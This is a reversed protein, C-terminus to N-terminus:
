EPVTLNLETIEDTVSVIQSAARRRKVAVEFIYTEGAAVTEFRYFGFSNARATRTSGRGDTMSVLAGSVGRGAPTLVRGSISVQAATPALPAATGILEVEGLQMSNAVNVDRLTPFTLRYTKYAVPALATPLQVAVMNLGPTTLPLGAANRELPLDLPQQDIQTWSAGGDNSGEFRYSAPDREPSDNATYFRLTTVATSGRLPTVVFGAGERTFNLYKTTTNDTSKAVGETEPPPGGGMWGNIIQLTDEPATVDIPQDTVTYREGGNFNGNGAGTGGLPVNTQNKISDNDVLDLRVTGEAGSGVYVSVTYSGGSGAVGNLGAGSVSGTTALAFDSVDVGTVNQTFLVNFRVTSRSNVFDFGARQITFALPSNEIPDASLEFAGIDFLASGNADGDKPRAMGRIDRTIAPHSFGCGNATAVCNDGRDILPSGASLGFTPMTGGNNALPSLLPDTGGPLDSAVFGGNGGPDRVLNGGSTTLWGSLDQEGIPFDNLEVSRNLAVVSNKMNLTGGSRVWVGGATVFFEGFNRRVTNEFVLSDILNLTGNSADIGAGGSSNCPCNSIAENRYIQSNIVTTTAGPRALIGAGNADHNSITDILNNRVTGSDFVLTAGDNVYIGGGDAQAANNEVLLDRLTTKGGDIKLGGGDLAAGDRVTMGSILINNANLTFIRFHNATTDRRVTLLNAGKGSIFLNKNIVLSRLDNGLTITQPADFLPAAFQITDGSSRASAIAERLSCDADCSGDATDATKTVLITTGATWTFTADATLGCRDTARVKIVYSGAVSPNLINVVGNADVTPLTPMAPSVSVISYALTGNDTATTPSVLSPATSTAAVSAPYALVPAPNTGSVNVTLTGNTTAGGDNATLTFSTGTLSCGAGLDARVTGNTNTINSVAVGNSPNASTVSVSVGGAGVEADDVTAITSNANSGPPLTVTAGAITPPTNAAGITLAWKGVGAMADTDVAKVTFTFTGAATPTGSLTGDSALSLGPPLAEGPVPVVSFTFPALQLPKANFFDLKATPALEALPALRTATLPQSYTQNITGHLLSAPTIGLNREFSGIDGTPNTRTAGRQDIPFNAFFTGPDGNDIAPSNQLLAHTPTPGGYNGLPALNAAVNLRNGALTQGGTGNSVINAGSTNGILNWGYSIMTAAIDPNGCDCGNRNGAIISNRASFSGGDSYIGGTLNGNSVNDTITTNTLNLSDGNNIYVAGAKNNTATNGSVTSNNLNSQAGATLGGGFTATNGSVTTRFLNLIGANGIGGGGGTSTNNSVISDSIAAPHGAENFIGAAFAGATNNVVTSFRLDLGGNNFIGGGTAGAACGEVIIGTAILNGNNLICGANVGASTRGRTFRINYLTLTGANIDLIRTLNQGDITLLNAGPGNLELTKEITLVSGLFITQNHIVPSFNIGDGAASATIAGRLSCDNPLVSCTTLTGNDIVTDVTRVAAHVDIVALGALLIIGPIARSIFEKM